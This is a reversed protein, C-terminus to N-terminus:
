KTRGTRSEDPMKSGKTWAKDLTDVEARQTRTLVKNLRIVDADTKFTLPAARRFLLAALVVDHPLGNGQEYARGLEKMASQQGKEAASRWLQLAQAPDRPVGAGTAYLRGLKFQGDADDLAAAQRYWDGAREMDKPITTGEAYWDGLTVRSKASTQVAARRMWLFAELRDRPVGVLNASYAQATVWQAGVHGREAARLYFRMGEDVDKPVSIGNLYAEGLKGLAGVHGQDAAKRYWKLAQAREEAARPSDRGGVMISAAAYRDYITAVGFQARADGQEALPEWVKLAADTKGAKYAREGDEYDARSPLAFMPMLMLGALMALTISRM